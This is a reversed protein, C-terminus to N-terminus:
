FKYIYCEGKSSRIFRYIQRDMTVLVIENSGDEVTLSNFLSLVYENASSQQVLVLTKEPVDDIGIEVSLENLYVFVQNTILPVVTEVNVENQRNIAEYLELSSKTKFFLERMFTFFDNFCTTKLEIHAALDSYDTMFNDISIKHSVNLYLWDNITETFLENLNLMCLINAKTDAARYISDLKAAFTEFHKPDEIKEFNFVSYIQKKLEKTVDYQKEAVVINRAVVTTDKSADNTYTEFFNDMITEVGENFCDVMVPNDIMTVKERSIPKTILGIVRGDFEKRPFERVRFVPIGENNTTSFQTEEPTTIPASDGFRNFQQHEFAQDRSQGMSVRTEPESRYNTPGGRSQFRPDSYGGVPGGSPNQAQYGFRPDQNVQQPTMFRGGGTPWGGGYGGQGAPMGGRGQNPDFMFMRPDIGYMIPDVRVYGNFPDYFWGNVPNFVLNTRPEIFMGSNPDVQFRGVGSMNPNPNPRHMQEQMQNRRMQEYAAHPNIYGNNM